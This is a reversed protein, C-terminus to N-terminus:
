FIWLMNGKPCVSGEKSHAVEIGLFYRLKGLNKIHFQGLLFAKLEKIGYTDNGDTIIIDDIYVILLTRGRETM